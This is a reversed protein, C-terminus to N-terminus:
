RTLLGYSGPAQLDSVGPLGVSDVTLQQNRSDRFTKISHM